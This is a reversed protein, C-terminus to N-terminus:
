PWPRCMPLLLGVHEAPRTRAALKRGLVLAGLVLRGFTIPQREPDELAVRGKGHRAVAELLARFLTIRAALRDFRRRESPADAM